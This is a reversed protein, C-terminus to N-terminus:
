MSVGGNGSTDVPLITCFENPQLVTGPSAKCSGVFSGGNVMPGGSSAGVFAGGNFCSVLVWPPNAVMQTIQQAAGSSNLVPYCEQTAPVEVSGGTATTMMLTPIDAAAHSILRIGSGGAVVATVVIALTLFRSGEDSPRRMLRLAVTAMLLALAILAFGGVTPVNRAFPEHVIMGAGGNSGAFATGSFLLPGTVICRLTFKSSAM